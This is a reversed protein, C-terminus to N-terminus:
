FLSPTIFTAFLIILILIFSIGLISFLEVNIVKENLKLKYSETVKSFYVRWKDTYINGAYRYPIPNLNTISSEELDIYYYQNSIYPFNTISIFKGQSYAGSKDGNTLFELADDYCKQVPARYNSIKYGAHFMNKQGMPPVEWPLTEYTPEIYTTKPQLYGMDTSQKTVLCFSEENKARFSLANIGNDRTIEKITFGGNSCKFITYIGGEKWWPENSYRFVGEGEFEVKEGKYETDEFDGQVGGTYKADLVISKGEFVSEIKNLADKKLVDKKLSIYVYTSFVIFIFIFFVFLVLKLTIWFKVNKEGYITKSPNSNEHTSDIEQFESNDIIPTFPPFKIISERLEPVDKIAIWNVLDESWILTEPDLSVEKIQELTFPGKQERGDLYYYQKDM